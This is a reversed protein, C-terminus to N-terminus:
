LSDITGTLDDITGTLAAISGPIIDTLGVTGVRMLAAPLTWEISTVRGAQTITGPLSITASQGPAADWRALAVVDQTRGQGQRRSLIAAAIGPGPYPRNLTLTYVRGPTGATDTATRAIGTTDTWSYLVVVGDCSLDADDATITDSGEVSTLPSLSLLGPATFVAPDVLHWLRAEDCYLRLGAATVITELFEWASVGARWTLADPSAGATLATRVSTSSGAAGSLTYDYDSTDATWADWPDTDTPDGLYESVRWLTTGVTSYIAPGVIVLRPRMRAATPSAVFRVHTKVWSGGPTITDGAVTQVVTGGANFIWPELRVQQGAQAFAWVTFIYEKGPTLPFENEHRYIYGGTTGAAPVARFYTASDAPGGSAERNSTISGSTWTTQWGAADSFLRPNACLNVSDALLKVAADPGSPALVAGPAVVGLVYAVVARVSAKHVYPTLDDALPKYAQALAEDTALSLRMTRAVHDVHRRRLSLDLTRPTGGQAGIQVVARLGDLPNLVEITDPSILPVVVDAQGYPVAGSDLTVTMDPSGLTLPDGHEDDVTVSWVPRRLITSM